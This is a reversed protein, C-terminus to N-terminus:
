LDQLVRGVDFRRRGALERGTPPERHHITAAPERSAHGLRGALNMSRLEVEPTLTQIRRLASMVHEYAAPHITEPDHEVDTLFEGIAESADNFHLRELEAPRYQRLLDALALWDAFRETGARDALDPTVAPFLEAWTRTVDPPSPPTPEPPLSGALAFWGGLASLPVPVNTGDWISVLRSLASRALALLEDTTRDRETRGIAEHIGSLLASLDPGGLDAVLLHIRDTLADWDADNVLLPLRRQGDRGGGVSLALAAGHLNCRSLFRLRATRDNALHEIVLDRWSPHVWEIGMRATRLFHDSLRDLLEVPPKGLAGDHHRRLADVLEREPVPGPPTDLMAILLDRHDAELTEFSAAM